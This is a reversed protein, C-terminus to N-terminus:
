PERRGAQKMDEADQVLGRAVESDPYIQLAAEFCKRAQDPNEARLWVRGENLWANFLDDKRRAIRRVNAWAKAATKWDPKSSLNEALFFNLAYDRQLSLDRPRLEAAKRSLAMAESYLRDMNWLRVRMVQPWHVLYIQALNFLYDANDPEAKIAEDLHALAQEYRGEHSDHIALNNHARAHRSNRRLVQEWIQVAKEREGFRDYLLEGYYNMLDPEDPCRELAAEYFRRALVLHDRMARAHEMARDKEGQEFLRKGTLEHWAAMTQQLRDYIRVRKVLRPPELGDLGPFWDTAKFAVSVPPAVQNPTPRGGLREEEPQAVGSFPCLLLLCCVLAMRRARTTQHTVPSIM